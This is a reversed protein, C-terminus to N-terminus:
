TRICALVSLADQQVKTGSYIASGNSALFKVQPAASTGSEEGRSPSAGLDGQKTFVGTAITFLPDIRWGATGTINPSQGFM